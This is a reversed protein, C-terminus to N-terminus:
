FGEGFRILLTSAALAFGYSLRPTGLELSLLSRHAAFQAEEKGLRPLKNIYFFSTLSRGSPRINSEFVARV